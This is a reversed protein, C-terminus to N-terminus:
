ERVSLADTIWARHMPHLDAPLDHLPFFRAALIERADIRWEGGSVHCLYTMEMRFKYGSALRLLRHPTVELGTEERIERRLADELTESRNCYGSPIAWSTIRWFRHKLLLVAGVEDIVVGSVGILFTAHGLRQIRWRLDNSLLQWGWALVRMM